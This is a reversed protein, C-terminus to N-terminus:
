AWNRPYFLLSVAVGEGVKEMDVDTMTLLHRGSRVVKHADPVYASLGLEHLWECCQSVDYNAFVSFPPRLPVCGGGGGNGVPSGNSGAVM